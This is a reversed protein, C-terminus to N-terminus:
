VSSNGLECKKLSTFPKSKYNFGQKELFTKVRGDRTKQYLITIKKRKGTLVESAIKILHTAKKSILGSRMKPDAGAVNFYRM